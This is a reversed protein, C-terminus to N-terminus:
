RCLRRDDAAARRVYYAVVDDAPGLDDLIEAVKKVARQWLDGRRMSASTDLLIAVRRGPLNDLPLM